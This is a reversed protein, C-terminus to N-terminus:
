LPAPISHLVARAPTWEFHIALVVRVICIACASSHSLANPHLAPTLLSLPPSVRLGDLAHVQHRAVAVCLPVHRVRSRTLPICQPSPRCPPILYLRLCACTTWEFHIALSASSWACPAYRVRPRTPSHMPTFPPPSISLSSRASRVSRPTSPSCRGRAVTCSACAFSHAPHMPTFPVVRSPRCPPLLYLPPVCLDDMRFSHRPLRLGRARHMDCVRVLPFTCLPSPRPHSISFSSRASRGSRPTSPSCRGRAVTCSACAFSHAPHMSTFPPVPTHTLPPPVRLRGNSIALLAVVVRLTCFACVFSHSLANPYLAYCPYSITSPFECDTWEFPSRSSRGRAIFVGCVRVLPRSANPHLAARLDGLPPHLRV